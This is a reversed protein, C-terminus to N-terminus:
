EACEEPVMPLSVETTAGCKECKLNSGSSTHWVHACNLRDDIRSRWNPTLAHRNVAYRHNGCQNYVTALLSAATSCAAGNEPLESYHVLRQSTYTHSAETDVLRFDSILITHQKLVETKLSVRFEGSVKDTCTVAFQALARWYRGLENDPDMLRGADALEEAMEEITV